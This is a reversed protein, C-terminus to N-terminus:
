YCFCAGAVLARGDQCVAGGRCDGLPLSGRRRGQRPAGDVGSAPYASSSAAPSAAEAAAGGKGATFSPLGPAEGRRGELELERGPALRM